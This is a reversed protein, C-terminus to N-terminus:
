IEVVRPIQLMLNGFKDAYNRSVIGALIVTEKGIVPSYWKRPKRKYSLLQGKSNRKQAFSNSGRTGIAVGRGVGMDVYKGYEKYNLRIFLSNETAQVVQADISALLSGTDIIKLQTVREKLRQVLIANWARGIEGNTPFKIDVSLERSPM